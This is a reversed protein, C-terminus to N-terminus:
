QFARTVRAATFRGWSLTDKGLCPGWRCLGAEQPATPSVSSHIYSSGGERWGEAAAGGGAEVSLGTGPPIPVSGSCSDGTM